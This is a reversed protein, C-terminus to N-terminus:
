NSATLNAITKRAESLEYLMAHVLEPSFTAIFNMDYSPRKNDKDLTVNVWGANYKRNLEAYGHGAAAAVQNLDDLNSLQTLDINQNYRPELSSSM